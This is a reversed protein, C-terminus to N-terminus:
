TKRSSISVSRFYPPQPLQLRSKGGLKPLTTPTVAWLFPGGPTESPSRHAERLCQPVAWHKRPSVWPSVWEWRLGWQQSWSGWLPHVQLLCLWVRRLLACCHSSLSHICAASLSISLNIKKVLLLPRVHSCPGLSTTFHRDESINLGQSSVTGLLWSQAPVTMQLPKSQLGWVEVVM